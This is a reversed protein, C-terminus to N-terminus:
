SVSEKTDLQPQGGLLSEIQGGRWALAIQERGDPKFRVSIYESKDRLGLGDVVEGTDTFVFRGDVEDVKSLLSKQFAPRVTEVVESPYNDKVWSLFENERYVVASQGGGAVTVTAVVDGEPLTVEVSKLGMEDRAKILTERTEARAADLEAEVADKLATLLAVKRTLEKM